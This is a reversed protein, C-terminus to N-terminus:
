RAAVRGHANQRDRMMNITSLWYAPRRLMAARCKEQIERMRRKKCGHGPRVDTYCMGHYSSQSACLISGHCREQRPMKLLVRRQGRTDFPMADVRWGQLQPSMTLSFAHSASAKTM